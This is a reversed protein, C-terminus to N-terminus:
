SREVGGLVERMILSLGSQLGDMMRAQSILQYFLPDPIEVDYRRKIFQGLVGDLPEDGEFDMKIRDTTANIINMREPVGTYDVLLVDPVYLRNFSNVHDSDSGLDFEEIKFIGVRM